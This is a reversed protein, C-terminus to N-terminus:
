SSQYFTCEFYLRVENDFSGPYNCFLRVRTALFCAYLPILYKCANVLHTYSVAEVRRVKTLFPLRCLALCLHRFIVDSMERKAETM